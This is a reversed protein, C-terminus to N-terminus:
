HSNSGPADLRFAHEARANIQMFAFHLLDDAAREALGAM